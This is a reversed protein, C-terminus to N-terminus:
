PVSCSLLYDPSTDVLWFSSSTDTRSTFSTERFPSLTTPRQSGSGSTASCRMQPDSSSQDLHSKPPLSCHRVQTPASTLTPPTPAPSATARGSRPLPPQGQRTSTSRGVPPSPCSGSKVEKRGMRSSSGALLWFIIALIKLKFIKGSTGLTSTRWSQRLSAGLTQAAVNTLRVIM